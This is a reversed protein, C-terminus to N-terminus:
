HSEFSLSAIFSSRYTADNGGGGGGGGEGGAGGGGVGGGGGGGGGADNIFAPRTIVSENSWQSMNPSRSTIADTWWTFYDASPHSEGRPCSVSFDTLFVDSVRGRGSLCVESWGPGDKERERERRPKRKNRECVCVCVCIYMYIYGDTEAPSIGWASCSTPLDLSVM